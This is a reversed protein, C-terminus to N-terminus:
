HSSWIPKGDAGFLTIKPLGARSSISVYSKAGLDMALKPDAGLNISLLHHNIEDHVMLGAEIRGPGEHINFGDTLMARSESKLNFLDLSSDGEYDVCLAANSIKQKETLSLCTSGFGDQGLTAVINGVQDKVLFENAELTKPHRTWNAVLGATLLLFSVAAVCRTWFIDRRLKEIKAALDLQSDL